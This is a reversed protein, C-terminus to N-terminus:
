WAISCVRLWLDGFNGFIYFGGTLDLHQLSSMFYTRYVTFECKQLSRVVERKDPM